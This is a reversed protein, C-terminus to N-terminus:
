TFNVIVVAHNVFSFRIEMGKLNVKLLLLIDGNSLQTSFM